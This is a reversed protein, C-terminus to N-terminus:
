ACVVKEEKGSRNWESDVVEAQQWIVHALHLLNDDILIQSLQKGRIFIDQPPSETVTCSLLATVLRETISSDAEDNSVFVDGGETFEVDIWGFTSRQSIAIGEEM